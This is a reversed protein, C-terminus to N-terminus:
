VQNFLIRIPLGQIGIQSQIRCFSVSGVPDPDVVNIIIQNPYWLLLPSYAVLSAWFFTLLVSLACMGIYSFALVAANKSM